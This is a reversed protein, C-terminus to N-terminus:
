FPKSFTELKQQSASQQAESVITVSPTLDTPGM